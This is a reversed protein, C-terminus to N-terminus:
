SRRTSHLPASRRPLVRVPSLRVVLVQDPVDVQLKSRVISGRTPQLIEDGDYAYVTAAAISDIFQDTSVAREAGQAAAALPASLLAACGLASLWQKTRM